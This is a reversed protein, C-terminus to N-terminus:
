RIVPPDMPFPFLGLSIGAVTGLWWPGGCSWLLAGILTGIAAGLAARRIRLSWPVPRPLSPVIRM